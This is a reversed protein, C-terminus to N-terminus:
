LLTAHLVVRYSTASTAYYPLCTSCLAVSSQAKDQIVPLQPPPPTFMYIPDVPQLYPVFSEAAKLPTEFFTM